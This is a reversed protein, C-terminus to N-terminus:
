CFFRFSLLGSVLVGLKGSGVLMNDQTTIKETGEYPYLPSLLKVSLSSSSYRYFVFNKGNKIEFFYNKKKKKLFIFNRQYRSM